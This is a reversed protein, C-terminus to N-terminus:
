GPKKIKKPTTWVAAVDVVAITKKFLVENVLLKLNLLLLSLVERSSASSGNGTLGVVQALRRARAARARVRTLGYALLGVGVGAVEPEAARLEEIVAYLAEM